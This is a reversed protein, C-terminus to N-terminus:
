QTVAALDIERSAEHATVVGAVPHHDSGYRDRVTVQRAAWGDPLDFFVHDLVLRERFTPPSPGTPTDPFRGLLARLAPEGAGLLTNMDGGVIGHQAAPLDRVLAAAQRARAADGFPGGRWWSLRNELHVSALFMRRGDIDITATVAGRPQRERPLPIARANLLTRTSLIANGRSGPSGSGVPSFFVSLDHTRALVALAEYDTVEQLLLVYDRSSTGTLQGTLLDDVLRALDGRGAHSNWTVVSLLAPNAPALAPPRHTCGAGAAALALM